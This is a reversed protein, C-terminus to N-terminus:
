CSLWFITKHATSFIHVNLYMEFSFLSCLLTAFGCGVWILLSVKVYGSSIPYGPFCAVIYSSFIVITTSWLPLFICFELTELHWHYSSRKTSPLSLTSPKCFCLCFASPLYGHPWRLSGPLTESKVTCESHMQQKGTFRKLTKTICLLSPIRKWVTLIKDYWCAISIYSFLDPLSVLSENMLYPLFTRKQVVAPRRFPPVQLFSVHRVELSLVRIGPSLSNALSLPFLLFLNLSVWM